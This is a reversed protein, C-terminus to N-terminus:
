EEIYDNYLIEALAWTDINGIASNLLDLYVGEVEPMNEELELEICNKICDITLNRNGENEEYAQLTVEKYYNDDNDIWLKCVWTEYNAYGNYTESM